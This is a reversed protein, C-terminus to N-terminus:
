KRRRLKLTTGVLDPDIHVNAQGGRGFGDGAADDASTGSASEYLIAMVIHYGPQKLKEKFTAMHDKYSPAVAKASFVMKTFTGTQYEKINAGVAVAILGVMPMPLEREQAADGTKISSTYLEDPFQIVGDPTFFARRAIEIIAPHCFPQTKDFKWKGDGKFEGPFIYVDDTILEKVALAVEARTQLLDLGFARPVVDRAIAMIDSRFNSMRGRPQKMLLRAYKREGLLREKITDAELNTAADVLSQIMLDEPQQSLNQLEGQRTLKPQTDEPWGDQLLQHKVINPKQDFRSDDSGFDEDENDPDRNNRDNYVGKKRQAKSPIRRKASTMREHESKGKGKRPSNRDRESRGARHYGPSSAGHTGSRRRPTEENIDRDERDADYRNGRRREGHEARAAIHGRPTMTTLGWEDNHPRRHSQKGGTDEADSYEAQGARKRGMTQPFAPSPGVGQGQTPIWITKTAVSAPGKKNKNMPTVARSKFLGSQSQSLIIKTTRQLVIAEIVMIGSMTTATAVKMNHIETQCLSANMVDVGYKPRERGRLNKTMGLGMQEAKNKEGRTLPVVNKDASELEYNDEAAPQTDGKGEDLDSDSEVPVTPNVQLSTEDNRDVLPVSASTHPDEDLYELADPGAGVEPDEEMGESEEGHGLDLDHDNSTDQAPRRKGNQTAQYDDAVDDREELPRSVGKAKKSTPQENGQIDAPQERKRGRKNSAREWVKMELAAMKSARPGTPISDRERELERQAQEAQNQEKTAAKLKQVLLAQQRVSLGKITSTPRAEDNSDKSVTPNKQSRKPPM